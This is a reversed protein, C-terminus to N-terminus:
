RLSRARLLGDVEERLAPELVWGHREIVHALATRLSANESALERTRSAVAESVRIDVRRQENRLARKHLARMVADYLEKLEIPKILYDLVGQAMAETATPADNVASLMVIGLEPNAELAPLLIEVGSLGPMRVDCLMLDFRGGALTELAADGSDATTVEFGRTRLYKALVVRITDEDDVVLVRAPADGHLTLQEHDLAASTM